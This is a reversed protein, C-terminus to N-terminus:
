ISQDSIRQNENKLNINEDFNQYNDSIIGDENEEVDYDVPIDDQNYDDEDESSNNSNDENKHM